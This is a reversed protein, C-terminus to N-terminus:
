IRMLKMTAKSFAKLKITVHSLHNESELASQLQEIMSKLLEVIEQYEVARNDVMAIMQLIRLSPLLVTDALASLEDLVKNKLFPPWKTVGIKDNILNAIKDSPIIDLSELLTAIREGNSDTSSYWTFIVYDRGAASEM